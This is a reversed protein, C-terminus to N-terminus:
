SSARFREPEIRYKQMLAIFARRNKRAAAAAHTVNGAHATLLEEIRAREFDQVVRAKAARFSEFDTPESARGVAVDSEGLVPSPALLVAREIVHELERVNGPWDHAMLRRLAAPSLGTVGRDFQRAFRRIFHLALAAIDERRSRLPPLELNLVNLRYFLDQRFEGRTAMTPLQHNSAAIVRVNARRVRAAGLPRYEHEQLFRLLKAQAALPLCDIDDLFLTGGEAEAVLGDRANHANTFAGKLHGFLESEVLESPIAGCNVAVCPHAARPSLYHIAQACLEKGTGTEGLILVGADCSALQPLRALQAIFTPSGGVFGRLRPDLTREITAPAAQGFLRRLRLALEAASAPLVVFDVIGVGLLSRLSPLAHAPCAALIACRPIRSKTLLLQQALDAATEAGLVWIAADPEDDSAAEPLRVSSDVEIGDFGALREILDRASRLEDRDAIVVCRHRTM